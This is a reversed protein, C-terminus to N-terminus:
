RRRPALHVRLAVELVIHQLRRTGVVDVLKLHWGVVCSVLWVVLWGVLWGVL